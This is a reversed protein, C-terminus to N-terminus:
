LYEGIENNIRSPCLHDRTCRRLARRLNRKGPEISLTSTTTGLLWKAYYRLTTTPKSHGLQSAVYTIPEGEALLITAFTLRLTYARFRRVQSSARCPQQSDHLRAAHLHAMHEVSSAPLAGLAGLEHAFIRHRATFDASPSDPPSWTSMFALILVGQPFGDAPFGPLM